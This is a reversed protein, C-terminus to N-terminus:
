HNLVNLWIKDLTSARRFLDRKLDFSLNNMKQWDRKKNKKLKLVFTERM